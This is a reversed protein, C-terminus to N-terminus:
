GTFNSAAETFGSWVQMDYKCILNQMEYKYHGLEESFTKPQHAQQSQAGRAQAQKEGALV